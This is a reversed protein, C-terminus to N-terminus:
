AIPGPHDEAPGAARARRTRVALVGCLAVLGGAGALAGVPVGGGPEDSVTLGGGTRGAAREAPEPVWVGEASVDEDGPADDDGGTGDSGPASTTTTSAPDVATTTTTSGAPTTTSSGDPVSGPSPATGPTSGPVPTATGGNGPRGGTPTSSPPGTPQPPPASSPPPSEDVGDDCAAPKDSSWGGGGGYRWAEITGGAPTVSGAGVQSYTYCRFYGWYRSGSESAPCLFCDPGDACGYFTGDPAQIGCVGGGEGQFTQVELALGTARLVDLGSGGPTGCRTFTGSPFVVVVLVASTSVEGEDTVCDLGARAAAGRAAGDGTPPAATAAGASLVSAAVLGLALVVSRVARTATAM